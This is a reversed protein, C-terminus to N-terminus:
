FLKAQLDEVIEEKPKYKNLGLERPDNPEFEVELWLEIPIMHPMAGSKLKLERGVKNAVASEIEYLHKGDKQEVWYRYKPKNRERYGDLDMGIAYGQYETDPFQHKFWMLKHRVQEGKYRM